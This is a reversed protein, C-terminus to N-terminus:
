QAPAVAINVSVALNKPPYCATHTCAQYRLKGTLTRAGKPVSSPVKLHTTVVFEGSYVSLPKESFEYKELKGAPYDISAVELPAIATTDWTLKLPILYEDSPKNSNTHFGNALRFTVPVAGTTGAKVRAPM